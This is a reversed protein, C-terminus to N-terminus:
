RWRTAKLFALLDALEERTLQEELGGPMVSVMGPRMGAIKERGIRTQSEPGTVLTVGESDEGRLIGSIEEDDSTSVLIPEYSRVFSANPFAIAELLDRETRIQGITTLDPGVTGGLYGIAHCSACAAKTSNFVTQGRRVDGDRTQSLLEELRAAQNRADERGAEFLTEARVQVSAPFNTLCPRLLEPRLAPLAPSVALSEILAAGLSEDKSHKFAALLPALELPGIRRMGLALAHRQELSLAARSLVDAAMRRNAVPSSPDLAGLLWHFLPEEL